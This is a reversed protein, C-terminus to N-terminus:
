MNVPLQKHQQKISIGAIGSDFCSLQFLFCGFLEFMYKDILVTSSLKQDM